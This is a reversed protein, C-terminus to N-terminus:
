AQSINWIKSLFEPSVIHPKSAQASDIEAKFDDIDAFTPEFLESYVDSHTSISGIGIGFKSQEARISMVAAFESAEDHCESLSMASFASVTTADIAEDYASLDAGVDLDLVHEQRLPKPVM